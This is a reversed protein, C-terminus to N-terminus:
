AFGAEVLEHPKLWAMVKYPILYGSPTTTLSDPAGGDFSPRSGQQSTQYNHQILERMGMVVNSPVAAMGATYTVWVEDAFDKCGGGATRRTLVQGNATFQNATAVNPTTAQTLTTPSGAAYEVVSSFVLPRPHNLVLKEGNPSHQEIFSQSGVIPGVVDEVVLTAAAIFLRLEEDHSADSSDWNLADRAEDLSIAYRPDAPWVDFSEAYVCANTGTAVWRATHRGAVTTTFDATYTGTAPHSVTPTSTTGDPKTVTLVVSTADGLVPPVVTDDFVFVGLPVVDGLDIM